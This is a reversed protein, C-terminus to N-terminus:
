RKDKKLFFKGKWKKRKKEKKKELHRGRRSRRLLLVRSQHTPQHCNIPLLLINGRLLVCSRQPVQRVTPPWVRGVSANKIGNAGVSRSSRRRCSSCRRRRYALWACGRRHLQQEIQTVRSAVILVRWDEKDIARAKGGVHLSKHVMGLATVQPQEPGVPNDM